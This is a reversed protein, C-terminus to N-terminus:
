LISNLEERATQVVVYLTQSDEKSPPRTVKKGSLILKLTESFFNAGFSSDAVHNNQYLHFFKIKSEVWFKAYAEGSLTNLKLITAALWQIISPTM